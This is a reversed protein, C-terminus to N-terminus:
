DITSNWFYIKSYKEKFNFQADDYIIDLKLGHRKMLKTMKDWILPSLDDPPWIGWIKDNLNRMGWGYDKPLAFAVQGAVEGFVSRPFSHIFNWFKKMATFHEETLIGYPNIKPYDFIILYKAGARYATIMDQLM